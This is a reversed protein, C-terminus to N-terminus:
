SQVRERGLTLHGVGTMVASFLLQSYYGIGRSLIMGPLLLTKGFVPVFLILFLKESIGMGGPLPLMDVTIAISAQLMVIDWMSTGNLGFAKYILFTVFFMSFRQIVTMVFVKLIVMGHTKLYESTDHYKEMSQVLKEMRSEKRKLIHVKELFTLCAVAMRKALQPHFLVVVMLAVCGVNLAIGLYFVPLIGTMYRSVFGKGLILILLGVVVLVMKYAITVVMLIVTSVPIPMKEKKLYYIQMPQGGSASPTICSFFFGISSVLFCKWEQVKINLTKSLYNIIVSEGWIFGVVCVMALAIYGPRAHKLLNGLDHLDEGKFVGYITLMFVLILFVANGIMKKKSKVAEGNRNDDKIQSM